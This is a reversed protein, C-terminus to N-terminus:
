KRENTENNELRMEDDEAIRGWWEGPCKASKHEVVWSCTNYIREYPFPENREFLKPM